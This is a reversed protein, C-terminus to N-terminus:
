NMHSTSLRRAIMNTESLTGLRIALDYGEEALDLFRDSLHLDFTLGPHEQAFAMLLPQMYMEGFTAPATLRLTGTLSAADSRVEAELADLEEILKAAKAYYLQGM